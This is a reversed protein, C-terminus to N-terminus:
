KGKCGFFEILNNNFFMKKENTRNNFVIIDKNDDLGTVAWVNRYYQWARQISWHAQVVPKESEYDWRNDDDTINVGIYPYWYTNIDGRTKDRLYHYSWPWGRWRTTFYKWHNYYTWGYSSSAKGKSINNIIDGTFADIWVSRFDDPIKTIIDFQFAM